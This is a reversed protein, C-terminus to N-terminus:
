ASARISSHACATGRVESRGMALFVAKMSSTNSSADLEENCTEPELNPSPSSAAPDEPDPDPTKLSRLFSPYFESLEALPSGPALDADSLWDPKDGLFAALWQEVITMCDGTKVVKHEQEAERRFACLLNLLLALKQRPDMEVPPTPLPEKDATRKLEASARLAARLFQGSPALQRTTRILRSPPRSNLTGPELNLTPSTPPSNLTGPELNLTPADNSCYEVTTVLAKPQHDHQHLARDFIAQDRERALRRELRQRDLRDSSPLALSYGSPPTTHLTPIGHDLWHQTRRVIQSIRRQSLGNEEALKAQSRGQTRYALFIAQDRASPPRKQRPLSRHNNKDTTM